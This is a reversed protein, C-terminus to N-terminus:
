ASDVRLGACEGDIVDFSVQLPRCCVECDEIYSQEGASLDLLLTIPEACFPCSTAQEVVRYEV